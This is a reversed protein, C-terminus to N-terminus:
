NQASWWEGQQLVTFLQLYLMYLNFLLAHGHYFPIKQERTNIDSNHVLLFEKYCIRNPNHYDIITVTGLKAM